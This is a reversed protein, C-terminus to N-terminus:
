ASRAVSRQRGRSLDAAQRWACAGPSANVGSKIHLRYVKHAPAPKHAFGVLVVFKGGSSVIEHGAGAIEHGTLVMEDGAGAFEGHEGALKSDLDVIEEDGDPVEGGASATEDSRKRAEDCTVSYSHRDPM